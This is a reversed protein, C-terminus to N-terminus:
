APLVQTKGTRPDGVIVGGNKLKKEYRNLNGNWSYGASKMAEKDADSLQPEKTNKMPDRHSGAGGKNVNDKNRLARLAENREGIIKKRNAIVFSEEIQDELSLHSPFTRNQFIELALDREDPDTALRDAIEFAKTQNVEKLTEQKSKALIREVDKLTLPKDEEDEEEEDQEEDKHKTKFRKEALAKEAKERAQRERELEAKYDIKNNIDKNADDQNDDKPQEPAEKPQDEKPADAKPATDKIEDTM